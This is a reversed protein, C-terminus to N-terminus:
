GAAAGLSSPFFFSHSYSIDVVMKIISWERSNKNEPHPTHAPSLMRMNESGKRWWGMVSNTHLAFAATYKDCQFNGGSEANKM